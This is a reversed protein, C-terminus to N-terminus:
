AGDDVSGGVAFMSAPDTTRWVCTKVTVAAPRFQARWILKWGAFLTSFVEPILAYKLWGCKDARDSSSRHESTKLSRVELRPIGSDKFTLISSLVSSPHTRVTVHARFSGLDPLVFASAPGASVIGLFFFRFIM